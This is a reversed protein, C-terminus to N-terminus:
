RLAGMTSVGQARMANLIEQAISVAYEQRESPTGHSVPVTVSIQPGGSGGGIKALVEETTSNRVVRTGAPAMLLERGQEGTLGVGGPMYGGSAFRPLRVTPSTPIGKLAGNIAGELMGLLANGISKGVNAFAEGWNIGRFFNFADMFANKVRGMINGAANLIGIFLGWWDIGRLFNIAGMLASIVLMPIKIPLTAFFGIIFGISEWFNNKLYIIGQVIWNFAGVMAQAVSAQTNWLWALVSILIRVVNIIVMVAGYLVVGLIVALAGLVPLLIPGVSNWFNMFAPILQTQVTIWLQQIAGWVNMIYPQVAAWIELLQPRFMEFLMRLGAVAAAILAITAVFAAIPSTVIAMIVGIVALGAGALAADKLGQTFRESHKDVFEIVPKLFEVTRDRAEGLIRVTGAMISEWDIADVAKLAWSVIPQLGEVIFLGITELVEGLQNQLIKLQGGFTKGAAEASGGFEMNLEKLILKQADMTKGSDVLTKIQEQQSETFSVGVKRLATVGAIPDNLAKGLQIASAKTDQGLAQSMDLMTKTAEQMIPGKINTFTLLLNQGTLVAEDGFTTMKSLATAQDLIADRSLGAAGATSKLVADLQATAAQSENINAIAGGVAAGLGALALGGVIAGGQVAQGLGAKAASGVKGINGEVDKLTKSAEDRARLIIDITRKDM